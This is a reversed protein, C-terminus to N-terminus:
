AQNQKKTSSRLTDDRALIPICITYKKALSNAGMGLIMKITTEFPIKRNRSFDIGPRMVYDDKNMDMAKIVADLKNKLQQSRNIRM